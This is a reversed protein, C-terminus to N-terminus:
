TLIATSDNVEMLSVDTHHLRLDNSNSNLPCNLAKGGKTGTSFNWVQSSMRIRESYHARLEYYKDTLSM